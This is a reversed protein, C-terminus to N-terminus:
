KCGALSLETMVGKHDSPWLWQAPGVRAPQDVIIKSRALHLACTGARAFVYDIRANMFPRRPQPTVIVDIGNTFGPDRPNVRKFTDTWGAATVLQVVPIASTTEINCDCTFFRRAPPDAAARADAYALATEAQELTTLGTENGPDNELHATVIQTSGGPTAIKAWLAERTGITIAEICGAVDGSSDKACFADETPSNPTLRLGAEDVIPYRSLVAEGEKFSAYHSSTLAAIENSLRGGGGPRTDPEGPFRPNSLYWCWYWRARTLQALRSALRQAVNGSRHHTLKNAITESAEQVGVIDVGAQALQRADLELRQDLTSAAPYRPPDQTLGHLVNLTAVRLTSTNRAVSKGAEAGCRPGGPLSQARASFPLVVVIVAM